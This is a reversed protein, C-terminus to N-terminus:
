TAFPDYNEVLKKLEKIKSEIHANKEMNLKKHLESIDEYERLAKTLKELSKKELAKKAIEQKIKIIKTYISRIKRKNNILEAANAAEYLLNTKKELNTENEILKELITIAKSIKEKSKEINTQLYSDGIIILAEAKSHQDKSKKLYNEAVLAASRKAVNAIIRFSKARNLENNAKKWCDAIRYGFYTAEEPDNNKLALDILHSFTKAADKYRHTEYHANAEDILLDIKKQIESM